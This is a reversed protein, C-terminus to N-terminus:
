SPVSFKSHQVNDRLLCSFTEMIFLFPYPSIPDCQRLGRKGDFCGELFGNMSVSFHATTVCQKIWNIMVTSFNM